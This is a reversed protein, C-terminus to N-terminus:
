SASQISRQHQNCAYFPSSESEGRPSMRLLPLDNLLGSPRQALPAPVSSKSDLHWVPSGRDLPSHATGAVYVQATPAFYRVQDLVVQFGVRFTIYHLM